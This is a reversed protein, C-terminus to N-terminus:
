EIDKNTHTCKTKINNRWFLVPVGNWRTLKVLLYTKSHSIKFFLEFIEAALLANRSVGVKMIAHLM